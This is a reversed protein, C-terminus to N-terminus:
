FLLNQHILGESEKRRDTDKKVINRREERRKPLCRGRKHTFSLSSGSLALPPILAINEREISISRIM